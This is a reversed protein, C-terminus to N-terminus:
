KKVACHGCCNDQKKKATSQCSTFTAALALAAFLSIVSKM